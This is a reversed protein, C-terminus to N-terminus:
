GVEVGACGVIEGLDNRAVLMSAPLSRLQGYRNKMDVFQETAVRKLADGQLYCGDYIMMMRTQYMGNRCLHANVCCLRRWAFVKLEAEAKYDNWFATVFFAATERFGDLDSPDITEVYVGGAVAHANYM